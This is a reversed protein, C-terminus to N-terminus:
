LLKVQPKKIHVYFEDKSLIHGSEKEVFPDDWLKTLRITICSFMLINRFYAIQLRM